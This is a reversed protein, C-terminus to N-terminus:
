ISNKALMRWRQSDVFLFIHCFSRSLLLRDRWRQNCMQGFINARVVALLCGFATSIEFSFTLPVYMLVVNQHDDCGFFPMAYTILWRVSSTQCYRHIPGWSGQEKAAAVTEVVDGGFSPPSGEASTSGCPGRPQTSLLATYNRKQISWWSSSSPSLSPPLNADVGSCNEAAAASVSGVAAAASNGCGDRSHQGRRIARFLRPNAPDRYIYTTFRRDIDGVGGGGDGARSKADFSDADDAAVVPLTQDAEFRITAGYIRRDSEVLSRVLSSYIAADLESPPSRHTTTTTQFVGGLTGATHVITQIADSFASGLGGNESPVFDAVLAAVSSAGGGDVGDNEDDDDSGCTNYCRDENAGTVAVVPEIYELMAATPDRSFMTRVRSEKEKKRRRCEDVSEAAPTQVTVLERKLRRTHRDIIWEDFASGEATEAADETVLDSNGIDKVSSANETTQWDAAVVPTMDASTLMTTMTPSSQVVGASSAASSNPPTSALALAVTPRQRTTTTTSSPSSTPSTKTTNSETGGVVPLMTPPRRLKSTSLREGFTTSLKSSIVITTTM